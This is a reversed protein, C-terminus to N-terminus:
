KSQVITKNVTHGFGYPQLSYKSIHTSTSHVVCPLGKFSYFCLFSGLCALCSNLSSITNKFHFSGLLMMAKSNSYDTLFIM